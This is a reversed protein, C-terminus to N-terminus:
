PRASSKPKFVGSEPDQEYDIVAAGDQGRASRRLEDIAARLGQTRRKAYRYLAVGGAAAAVTAVLTTVASM